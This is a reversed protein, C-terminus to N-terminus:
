DKKKLLLDFETRKEQLIQMSHLASNKGRYKEHAQYPPSNWVVNWFDSNRYCELEAIRNEWGHTRPNAWLEDLIACGASNDHDFMRKMAFGGVGIFTCSFTFGFAVARMYKQFTKNQFIFFEIIRCKM